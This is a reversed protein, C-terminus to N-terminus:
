RSSPGSDEQAEARRRGASFLALGVLGWLLSAAFTSLSLSLAVESRMGVAGFLAVYLSERVGAGGVSIPLLSVATVFPVVVAFWPWGLTTDLPVALILVALVPLGQCVLSLFFARAVLRPQRSLDGIAELSRSAVQAFRSSVRRLLQICRDFIRRGLPHLAAMTVVAIGGTASVLAGRVWGEDAARDAPLVVFPAGVLAVSGLAALGLLREIALVGLVEAGRGSDRRAEAFRYVDGALNSPLVLGFFSAVIYARLVGATSFVLGAGRLLATFRWAAALFNAGFVVFALAFWALAESLPASWAAALAEPISREDQPIALRFALGLLLAALAIRLLARWLGSRATSAAM